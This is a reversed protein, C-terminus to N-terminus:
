ESLHVKLKKTLAEIEALKEPSKIELIDLIDAALEKAGSRYTQDHKGARVDTLINVVVLNVFESSQQLCLKGLENKAKLAAINRESQAKGEQYGALWDLNKQKM